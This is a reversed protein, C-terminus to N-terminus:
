FLLSVQYAGAASDVAVEALGDVFVGLQMSERLLLGNCAVDLLDYV